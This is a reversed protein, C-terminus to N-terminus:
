AVTWGARTLGWFLRQSILCSHEKIFPDFRGLNQM